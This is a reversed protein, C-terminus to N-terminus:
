QSEKIKKILYRDIIATLGYKSFAELEAKQKYKEFFEIQSSWFRDEYRPDRKMTELRHLDLENLPISPLNYKKIDTAYIGLWKAEPTALEPIHAAIASGSIIVRAIHMGWPDADTLVYVPLGLEKNLRKILMRTFRPAQGGTDILIANLKKYVQEEVFRRFIAGKEIAIVIKANCEVFKVTALSLGINKGDPDTTLKVRQGRHTPPSMYEVTLDGFISSKEEPIINFNERPCGLITELEVVLKDSEDQEEFKIKIDNFSNYYLDRLSCSRDKLLLNEKAFYAIWLLQSFIKAQRVNSSKRIVFKDGLKVIKQKNDYIVNTVSRLPLKIIPFEQNQVYKLVEKGILTLRDVVKEKEM